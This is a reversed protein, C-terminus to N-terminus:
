RGGREGLQDGDACPVPQRHDVVQSGAGQDVQGVQGVLGVARELTSAPADSTHKEPSLSSPPGCAPM